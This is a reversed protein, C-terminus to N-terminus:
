IQNILKLRKLDESMEECKQKTFRYEVELTNYKGLLEFYRERWQTSQSELESIRVDQKYIIERLNKIEAWLEDRIKAAIDAKKDAKLLVRDLLEKVIGGFLAGGLGVVVNIIDMLAVRITSLM